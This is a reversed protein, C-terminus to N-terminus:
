KGTPMLGVMEQPEVLVTNVENKLHSSAQFTVVRRPPIMVEEGTM